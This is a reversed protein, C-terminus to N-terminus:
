QAPCVVGHQDLDLIDGDNDRGLEASLCVLLVTDFIVPPYVLEAPQSAAAVALGLFESCYIGCRHITYDPWCIFHRHNQRVKKDCGDYLLSYCM